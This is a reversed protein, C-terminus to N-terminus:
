LVFGADLHKRILKQVLAAAAAQEQRFFAKSAFLVIGLHLPEDSIRRITGVPAPQANDVLLGLEEKTLNAVPKGDQGVASVLLETPHGATAIAPPSAQASLLSSALLFLSVSTKM